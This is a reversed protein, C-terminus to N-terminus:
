ENRYWTCLWMFTQVDIFDRPELDALEERVHQCFERIRRYGAWSPHPSYGVDYSWADAASKVSEPKVFVEQRPFVIWRWFTCIPWKPVSLEEMLASFAEFRHQESRQGYLLAHLRKAFAEECGPDDLVGSWLPQSERWDVVNVLKMTDRARLCADGYRGADLLESLKDEALLDLAAEHADAKYRREGKIFEGDNFGDPYQGVFAEVFDRASRYTSTPKAAALDMGDLRWHSPRPVLPALPFRSTLITRPGSDVFFIQAKDGELGTVEGLGLKPHEVRDGRKLGAATM